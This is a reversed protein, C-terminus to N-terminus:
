RIFRAEESSYAFDETLEGETTKVIIRFLVVERNLPMPIVELDPIGILNDFTLCEVIARQILSIQYNTRAEGLYSILNAGIGRNLKWTNKRSSLRTRMEQLLSRNKVGSTDLLDGNSDVKFDGDRTFWLDVRDRVAM